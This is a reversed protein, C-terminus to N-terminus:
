ETANSLLYVSHYIGLYNNYLLVRGAGSRVQGAAIWLGFSASTPYEGSLHKYTLHPKDSFLPERREDGTIVMDFDRGNLFSLLEQMVGEDTSSNRITSLKRFTHVGDLRALDSGSPKGTLLFFAAGEGAKTHRFLGFRTLLRRSTATIEDVGGVLVSAAEKDALLLMADLLASEFSFGRHVFTNNYGTCELLLAIQAGVTNHTSQIFPAPQLLEENREIMSNLFLGTDELCGYATGTVIADPTTVGAERLCTLAAAAGMKIIRSMRRILKPDLLARYDPESQQPSISAAARIYVPQNM